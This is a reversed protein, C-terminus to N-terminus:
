SPHKTQVLIGVLYARAAGHSSTASWSAVAQQARVILAQVESRAWRRGLDYDAEHRAQQLDVFTRAITILDAPLTAFMRAWPNQANQVFAQSTARMQTHTFARALTSRIKIPKVM